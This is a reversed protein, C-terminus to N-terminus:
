PIKLVENSLMDVMLIKYEIPESPLRVPITSLVDETHM